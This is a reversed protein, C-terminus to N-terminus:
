LRRLEDTRRQYVAISDAVLKLQPRDATSDSPNICDEQPVELAYCRAGEGTAASPWVLGRIDAADFVRLFYECFVQTPVYDISSTRDDVPRCLEKVMDHLFAIEGQWQGLDPDFISPVEPIRALDLVSIPVTTCFQGVTFFERADARSVEALATNIDEAGYFLPIGPPSMRTSSVSREPTNTGLDTAGWLRSDDRGQHARARYTRTGAPLTTICGFEVLLHGLEELVIAVPVEHRWTDDDPQAWFVFRTKHLIQDRFEQWSEAFAVDRPLRSWTRSLYTEEVLGGRISELIEDAHAASVTYIFEDAIDRHTHPSVSDRIEHDWPLVDESPEFENSIGVALSEMFVDFDAAPTTGCFSCPEDDTAAAEVIAKLYPDEVCGPCIFGDSTQWVHDSARM